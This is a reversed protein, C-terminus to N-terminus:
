LWTGIMPEQKLKTLNTMKGLYFLLLTKLTSQIISISLVQIERPRISVTFGNLLFRTVM